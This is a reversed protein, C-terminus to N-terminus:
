KIGITAGTTQTNNREVQSVWANLEMKFITQIQATVATPMEDYCGPCIIRSYLIPSFLFGVLQLQDVLKMVYISNTWSQPSAIKGICLYVAALLFRKEM